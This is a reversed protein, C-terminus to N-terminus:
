LRSVQRTRSVCPRSGPTSWSAGPVLATEKGELRPSCWVPTTSKRCRDRRASRGDDYVLAVLSSTRAEHGLEPM